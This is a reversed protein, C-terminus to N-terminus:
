APLPANDVILPTEFVHIEPHVGFTELIRAKFAEGHAEAAAERSRWLYVGGGRGAEIDLLYNKRILAPHDRWIVASSEYAAEVQARTLQPPIKFTVIETFLTRDSM